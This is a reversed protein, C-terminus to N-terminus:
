KVKALTLLFARVRIDSPLHVNTCTRSEKITECELCRGFGNCVNTPGDQSIGHLLYAERGWVISFTVARHSQHRKFSYSLSLSSGMLLFLMSTGVTCYPLRLSSPLFTFSSGNHALVSSSGTSSSASPLICTCHAYVLM